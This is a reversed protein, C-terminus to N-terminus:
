SGASDDSGALYTLGDIVDVVPIYETGKLSQEVVADAAQRATMEGRVIADLIEAITM